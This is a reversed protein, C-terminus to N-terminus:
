PQRLWMVTRNSISGWEIWVWPLSRGHYLSGSMHITPLKDSSSRVGSSAAPCLLCMYWIRLIMWYWQVLLTLLTYLSVQMQIFTNTTTSYSVCSRCWMRVCECVSVSVAHLENLLYFSERRLLGVIWVILYGSDRGHAALVATQEIRTSAEDSWRWWPQYVCSSEPQHSVASLCCLGLTYSYAHTLTHTHLHTHTFTHLHTHSHTYTLSHSHTHTHAHIHTLTHTLTYTHPEILLM